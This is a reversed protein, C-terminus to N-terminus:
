MPETPHWAVDRVIFSMDAKSKKKIGVDRESPSNWETPSKIMPLTHKRNIVEKV